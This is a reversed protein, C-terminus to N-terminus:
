HKLLAVIVMMTAAANAVTRFLNSLAWRLEHFALRAQAMHEYSSSPDVRKIANNLPVNIVLTSIFALLYAVFGALLYHAEAYAQSRAYQYLGLFLFVPMLLQLMFVPNIISKDIAQFSRVFTSNDVQKLGPMITHQYFLFVGLMM